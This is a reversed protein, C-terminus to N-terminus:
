ETICTWASNEIVFQMTMCIFIAGFSVKSKHKDPVAYLPVALCQSANSDETDKNSTDMVGHETYNEKKNSSSSFNQTTKQCDKKQQHSFEPDTPSSVRADDSEKDRENELLSYFNEQTIPVHAIFVIIIIFM